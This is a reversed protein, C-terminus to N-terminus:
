KQSRKAKTVYRYYLQDYRVVHGMIESARRRVYAKTRTPDHFLDGIQRDQEPDPNFKRPRGGLKAPPKAPPRVDVTVGHAEIMGRWKANARPNGGLDNESLVILTDGERLGGDRLMDARETREKSVDIYVVEAGAARLDAETRRYGYGVM